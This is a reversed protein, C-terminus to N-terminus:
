QEKETHQMKIGCNPCFPTNNWRNVGYGCCSCKWSTPSDDIWEGKPRELVYTKPSKIIHIEKGTYKNRYCYFEPTETDYVFDKPIKQLIDGTTDYPTGNAIADALETVNAYDDLEDGLKGNIYQECIEKDKDDIEIIYKSM